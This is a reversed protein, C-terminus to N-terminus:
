KIMEYTFRSITDYIEDDFPPTCAENGATKYEATKAFPTSQIQRSVMMACRKLEVFQRELPRTCNKVGIKPQTSMLSGITRNRSRTTLYGISYYCIGKM